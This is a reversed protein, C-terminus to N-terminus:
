HGHGGLSSKLLLSKVFYSKASVYEDGVELGEIAIFNEDQTIIKVVRPEYEVYEEEHEGHEEKPIFVVWENNFFSLATKKVSKYSTKKSFYITSAVYSNIFFNQENKPILSLVVIRQTTKDLEPLIKSIKTVVDKLGYKFVIKQGLRIDQSYRLPIFSKLYYGDQSVINLLPTHESISSHLPQLIKSVTGDIHANLIYASSASTIKEIDIDLARLQSKLSQIKSLMADKAISQNNLDKKSAMGKEYLAKTSKFNDEKAKYQDKLSIYQATMKSLEISNILAVKDGVKVKSAHTVYYKSIHGSVLSTISQKSNSLQVIKSNLELSPSFKQMKVHSLPIESATLFSICYILLM